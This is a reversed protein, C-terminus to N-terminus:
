DIVEGLYSGYGMATARQSALFEVFRLYDDPVIWFASGPEPCYAFVSRPIFYKLGVENAILETLTADGVRYVRVADAAVGDPCRLECYTSAYLASAPTLITPWWPRPRNFQGDETFHASYTPFPSAQIAM